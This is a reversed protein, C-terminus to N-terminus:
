WPVIGGKMLFAGNASPSPQTAYGVIIAAAEDTSQTGSHGNLDTATYGPTVSSVCFNEGALEQALSVTLANLLTKSSNYAFANVASYPFDPYGRLALSGLESSVNIIVRDQGKRLLPLMAQTVALVGVLNVEYSNRVADLNASSPPAMELITGANNVLLDLSGSIRAIEAAADAIMAANTVDLAVFSLKEGSPDMEAAAARGQEADRAGLFVRYGKTVLLRATAKGIGINAGTVFATKM